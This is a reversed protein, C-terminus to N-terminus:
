AMNAATPVIVACFRFTAANKACTFCSVDPVPDAIAIVLARVQYNDIRPTEQMRCDELNQNLSHNNYENLSSRFFVQSDPHTYRIEFQWKTHRLDVICQPVPCIKAMSDLPLGSRIHELFSTSRGLDEAVTM